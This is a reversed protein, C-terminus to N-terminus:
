PSVLISRTQLYYIVRMVRFLTRERLGIDQFGGEGVEREQARADIKGVPLKMSGESIRSM